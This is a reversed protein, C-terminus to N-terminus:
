IYNLYEETYFSKSFCHNAQARLMLWVLLIFYIQAVYSVAHLRKCDENNLCNHTQVTRSPCLAEMLLVHYTVNPKSYLYTARLLFYVKEINQVCCLLSLRILALNLFVLVFDSCPIISLKHIHMACHQKYM